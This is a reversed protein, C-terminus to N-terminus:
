KRECPKEVLRSASDVKQLCKSLVYASMLAYSHTWVRAKEGFIPAFRWM